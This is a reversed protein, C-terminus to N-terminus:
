VTGIQEFDGDKVSKSVNASKETSLIHLIVYTAKSWYLARM